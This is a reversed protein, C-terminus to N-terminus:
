LFNYTTHRNRDWLSCDSVQHLGSTKCRWCWKFSHSIDQVVPNVNVSPDQKYNVWAKQKDVPMDNEFKDAITAIEHLSQRKNTMETERIKEHTRSAICSKLKDIILLEVLSKLSDVKCSDLYYGLNLFLRTSLNVYSENSDRTADIFMKRCDGPTLKFERCVTTRFKEYTNVKKKPLSNLLLKTKKNVSPMIISIKFEDSIHYQDFDRDCSQFVIQLLSPDSDM